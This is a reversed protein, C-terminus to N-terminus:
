LGFLIVFVGMFSMQMGHKPVRKFYLIFFYICFSILNERVVSSDYSTIWAAPQASLDNALKRLSKCKGHGSCNNPCALRQCSSGTFGEFCVCTGTQRNCKGQNSCEAELHASTISTPLDGWATGFPCIRESCDINTWGEWCDCYDLSNCKGHGNCYNFDACSSTVHIIPSLFFFSLFFTLLNYQTM